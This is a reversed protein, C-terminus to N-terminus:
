DYDNIDVGFNVEWGDGRGYDTWCSVAARPTPCSNTARAPGYSYGCGTTDTCNINSTFISPTSTFGVTAYDAGVIGTIQSFAYTVPNGLFTSLYITATHTGGHTLHTVIVPYSCDTLTAEPKALVGKAEALKDSLKALAQIFRERYPAFAAPDISEPELVTVISQDDGNRRKAIEKRRMELTLHLNSPLQTGTAVFSRGAEDIIIQISNSELAQLASADQAVSFTSALLIVIGTLIRSVAIRHKTLSLSKM